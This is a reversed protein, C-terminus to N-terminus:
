NGDLSMCPFKGTSGNYVVGIHKNAFLSFCFHKAVNEEVTMDAPPKTIEDELPPEPQDEKTTPPKPTTSRIGHQPQKMHGKATSPAPLFYKKVLKQSLNPAGRLLGQNM